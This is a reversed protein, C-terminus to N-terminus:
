EPQKEAIATKIENILAQVSLPKTLYQNAGMGLVRVKDREKDVPSATIVVIPIPQTSEKAKLRRIVEYGDVGPMRLDLLILDPHKEVVQDLAEQGNTATRVQYGHYTLAQVLLGRIDEDDDVVLVDQSEGEEAPALADRVSQLLKVEEFPKVVYDVAGLAYGEEADALVSVIIVPIPATVPNAKLRELVIFGDLDPLMMDLTILQPQEERALWLADEGSGALLVHYGDSELQRRLLLALDHDDEVVLIKQRRGIVSVETTLLDPSVDPVEATVLPLTFSFKSGVELESEVWIDGGLMEVFMKVISLGLGTGGVEDVVPDDVRYFRDFVRALDDPSIGIGTDAVDVQLYGDAPKVSVTVTGEPNTYQWANSVLNTLIQTVRAADGRVQPLEGPSEWELSVGKERYQERFSLAVEDIIDSMTLAEINLRIRGTEIRSIDLIDNVLATLRDANSKIIQLFSRQADTLGGVMGLFLLDTYGKISTMPTRLEHSVTSIFENKLREVEAERSVDRLAAVLGPVGGVTTILPAVNMALVKTGSELRVAGPQLSAADEPTDELRKRLEPYLRHALDRQIETEGLGLIHRFHEGEIAMASIGLLEEAAPNVLLVRGKHDLVLVGDAISELIARSKAAESRQSQLMSGLQDAQETIYSYLDSNNVAIAIQSAAATVLQLHEETFHGVAAHGLTLVGMVDGGGLSLPAAVVSRMGLERGEIQLWRPDESVDPILAPERHELTWGALGVGRTFPTQEGIKVQDQSPGFVARLHLYGTEQDLLTITGHEIDLADVFLQLAHDLVRELDLTAGLESTIRYLTEARDRETTLDHMANALDRTRSEVRDELEGSFNVIQRYLQANRMAVAVQASITAFIAQEPEGYLNEQEYNQIAMVGVVQDAAVLPVGLWSKAREGVYDIGQEDHFAHNEQMSRFLIPQRTRIIHGTLGADVSYRLLSEPKGHERAFALVWEPSGTEYTAIYFNTTDFIRSVQRYVVELLDELELASSIAQSMDNLVALEEIRWEREQFLSANQLAIAAQGAMTTLLRLHGEDYVYEEEYSQVAIVGLVKDAAIMPVGLWSRCGAGAPIAKGSERYVGAVGTPLLLPEGTEIIRGTLGQGGRFPSWEERQEPDVAFPFTILDEVEDYMAIFFNTTDMLRGLQKHVLELLADMELTSSLAQATENLVALAAIRREREQFLTANQLAISAQGAITSLLDLHGKDYVNEEEFSLAGLVGLVRDGAIMPVGMWCKARSGSYEIGRERHFARNVEENCLLLRERNRIIYGTLGTEAPFRRAPQREGDKLQFAMEWEDSEEEYTAIYVFNTDMLEGVQRCITELLEDLELTSSVTQALENLAASESIRRAREELLSANQYAIAAQGAITSLLNLHAEDYAAELEYSQIVIGGVVRNEVTMPVGLWSKAPAGDPTLGHKQHFADTGHTLLIPQGTNILHSTLAQSGRLEIPPQRQDDEVLFGVRILDESEDYLAIYFNRTDLLKSVHTYILEALQETQLAGSIAQGIENVTALEAVRRQTVQFLRANELAVAAQNAMAMMLDVDRQAFDRQDLRNIATLTGLVEDQYHVPVVVISGSNDNLRRQYAKQSERPDYKGKLSLAPEEERLVWGSLGRWLEEFASPDISEAGPGGKVFDVVRRKGLDLINLATRDAPLAEAVGDVVVQLTESLSEFSIVSRTAQYLARSEALASQTEEFLRANQIAVALQDAAMELAGADEDAFAWADEAEAHLVGIVQGALKIPVSLCAPAAWDELHYVREDSFVDNSMVTEGSAAAVGILGEGIKQRYDPPIVPWFGENAAAVCLDQSAGEVLFVAVRFYGLNRHLADATMDLMDDLDLRAAARRGIENLLSLRVAAQQTSAFLRASELAVAAQDALTSLVIQDTETLAYKATCGASIVGIANGSVVIPVLLMSGIPVPGAVFRPEQETDPILLPTKTSAVQGVLGSGPAFRLDALAEADVRHSAVPVFNGDTPAAQFIASTDCRLLLGVGRVVTELVQEPESAQTLGQGIENLLALNDARRRADDYLYANEVAIAAQNGFIALVELLRRSPRRGDRPDDVSIVGVLRGGLGRLPVVLMDQPHWFGEEWEDIEPMFAHFDLDTQWDDRKDFPFFYCQGQRYEDRLINEYRVVPQRIQMMKEFENLPLGAAAARKLIPAGGDWGEAVSILVINFGVTEQISYAVEELTDELPIDTRLKQSVALLGDMQDTRRRLTINGKVQEEFRLANGIAISSQEALAQVFAQDDQHFAEVETHRLHIVGVVAGAYFIPMALASRTDERVCVTYSELRADDVISPEGRSLVQHTISEESLDLLADEISAQDEPSYGQSTRLTFKQTDLDMLMVNGHTARTTQIAAELVVQLVSDLDLTATLQQTTRQLAMLQDVRAQLSEDTREYLRANEIAIAAQNALTQALRVDDESFDRVQRGEFLELLGMVQDRAVMPVLLLSQYGLQELLARESLDAEQDTAQIVRPQRTSLVEATTPYDELLYIQGIDDPSDDFEVSEDILTQVLNRDPDWDSISCSTVDLAAAIKRAVTPLVEDLELSSSIAASTEFLIGLERVQRQQAEFLRANQIAVAAQDAIIRLMEVHEDSYANPRNSTLELTGVFTEGSKLPLGVYSRIPTDESDIKPRVDDRTALDSVILEQQNRAIWGTFGEHLYYIGGTRATYRPDGASAYTVMLQHVEDWLCIEAIDFDVLGGVRTLILNLTRELDLSVRIEQGIEGIASLMQVRQRLDQFLRANELAIAAQNAFTKLTDLELESFHHPEAHYVTFEGLTEERGRLPVDAFARFGERRALWVYETLRPDTEIDTVVLPEDGLVAQARSDAGLEINQSDAMYEDSLGHSMRLSVRGQELEFIAAKQGGTVQIAADVITKLVRDPDLESSVAASVQNLSALDTARRQQERFLRANEIAIGAHESLHEAFRLDDETFAAPRESELNLVGIVREERKIPVALESRTTDLVAEYDPDDQVDEVLASRGTRVVRGVIGQEIDWGQAPLDTTRETDQSHWFLEDLQQGDAALIGIVGSSANCAQIARRLGLNIIRNYDLTSGLEHDIEEITALEQLRKNLAEDTSEYLRANEVAIVAQHTLALCLQIEDSTFSRSQQQEAAIIFGRPEDHIYLGAFLCSRVGLAVLMQRLQPSLAEDAEVSEFVVYGTERILDRLWSHEQINFRSDKLAESTGSQDCLAKLVSWVEGFRDKEHLFVACVEVDLASVM